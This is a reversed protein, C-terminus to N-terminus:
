GGGDLSPSSEEGAHKHRYTGLGFYLVGRRRSAVSGREKGILQQARAGKYEVSIDIGDKGTDYV